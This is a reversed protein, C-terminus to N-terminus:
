KPRYKDPVNITPDSLAIDLFNNGFFDFDYCNRLTSLQEKTRKSAALSAASLIMCFMQERMVEKPLGITPPLQGDQLSNYISGLFEM